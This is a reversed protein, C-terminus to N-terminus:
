WFLNSTSVQVLSIEANSVIYLITNLSHNNIIQLTFNIILMRSSGVSVSNIYTTAGPKMDGGVAAAKGHCM